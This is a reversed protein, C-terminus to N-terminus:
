EHRLANVPDIRSARTAPALGAAILAALLIATAMLITLPDAPKMGFIFSKIASLTTWACALGVALGIAAFALVERMVMWVIRRREAGLAMRIGIENTRRSVAYAMVGYLGVCAIALALIAFATCLDAFTREQTITSDIRQTQTMMNTVPVLPAADHVVKRVTDALATPNGITRLEFFMPSPPRNIVDQLLSLYVVPPIADKLSSYRANKAIGIVTFENDGSNGLKFHHGIPSQAPFFKKAFVENVVVALPSGEVDRSDIARGLLIPLQMTEFFTSGVSILSTRTADRDERKPIGPMLVQTRSNSGAVMPMDTITAARVGPLSRFREDMHAYFTRLAAGKYGAQSADLRFTLLKETNFGIEVAHLNALTRVFIAAGLVLLLSLAIQAIVLFQSLGLIRGRRHPASARSEKLAPTIDVRTAAVAPALGFFIGTAFAVALTFGLIHWDLNARLKLEDTGAALLWILFRIGLAAIGLGLIGGPIALMLSETLLQRLVRFRSAGLSLRVAIERRRATSRALLLNAINACAIILIFAVMTMLVFLPKSFQRRVADVGSGGEELWLWPLTAREKANQASAAVFQHFRAAVEAQAAQMTAGPRLRGMMDAWYFHSDIFMTDRENGYNRALAPRNEIPVYLDPAFGPSVGFFDPPAVGTIAFPIDNIRITQGVAAPDGAFRERWYNYSLVAVQSAGARNDNDSILRGVAPVIGLGSFFNGSVLEVPKVEAQGRVIVNLQGAGKYAFLTSFVNNHDRFLEYAPWPFDPSTIGGGPERYNSGNSSHAVEPYQKASWNLIVLEGPNKVPLARIMIADIISYIATNAGIGLALSLVAMAAFLPNNRLTRWGYRIDQGLRQLWLWGWVERVDEKLRLTNGFDRRSASEADKRSMGSRVQEETEAALDYAIEDDLDADRQKWRWFRWQM